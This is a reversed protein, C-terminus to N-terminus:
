QLLHKRDVSSRFPLRQAAMGQPNAFSERITGRDPRFCRRQRDRLGQIGGEDPTTLVPLTIQLHPNAVISGILGETQRLAPRFVARLILGMAIALASYHPQGDRTTGEEAQWAAIAEETFWVTLGGRQRLAADYDSWNTVRHPQRPIHHRGAANAKFPV